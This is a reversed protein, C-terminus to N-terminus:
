TLVRLALSMGIGIGLVFVASMTLRVTGNLYNGNLLDAAGNILPVGPILFLVSAALAADPTASLWRALVGTLIAALASTAIAFVLPKYGAKALRLRLWTGLGAGVTTAVVAALDGGFLAAFGGCAFGVVLAILWRPAYHPRTHMDDLLHTFAQVSIRGAELSALAREVGTLTRFNVGMHPAKHFATHQEGRASITLGLNLSSVLTHAHDAGLAQAARTMTDATRATDGGSQHVLNGAQLALHAIDNLSLAM